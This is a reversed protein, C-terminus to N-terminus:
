FTFSTKFNFNSVNLLNVEKCIMTIIKNNGNDTDSLYNSYKQNKKSCSLSTKIKIFIINYSKITKLELILNKNM